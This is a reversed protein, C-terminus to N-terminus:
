STPTCGTTTVVCAQKVTKTATATCSGCTATVAITHCTNDLARFELNNGNLRAIYTDASKGTLFAAITLGDITYAFTCGTFGSVSPTFTLVGNCASSDVALTATPSTVTLTVCASAKSCPTSTSDTVTGVFKKTSTLPGVSFDHCKETKSTGVHTAVLTSPTGAPDCGTQGTVDYLKFTFPGLDDGSTTCLRLTTTGGCPVSCSAQVGGTSTDCDLTSSGRGQICIQQHRCKSPIQKGTDPCPDNKVVNWTITSCCKGSPCQVGKADINDSSLPEGFCVLGAGCPYNPIIGYMVQDTKGPVFTDGSGDPQSTLTVDTQGLGGGACLHLRICQRDAAANNRVTFQVVANFTGTCTCPENLIQGVGLIRVDNATCQLGSLDDGLASWPWLQHIAAAGAGLVAAKLFSRRSPSLTKEAPDEPIAPGAEDSGGRPSSSEDESM